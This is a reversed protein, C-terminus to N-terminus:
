RFKTGALKIKVDTNAIVLIEWCFHEGTFSEVRSTSKFVASLFYGLLEPIHGGSHPFTQM